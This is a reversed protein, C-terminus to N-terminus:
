EKHRTVRPFLGIFKKDEPLWLIPFSNNPTNHNLVLPLACENFGLYPRDHKGEKYHKDVISNDFYPEQSCLSVFETHEMANEEIIQIACVKFNITQNFQNKWNDVQESIYNLAERTAIYFLLTVSLENACFLESYHQQDTTPKFVRGFFKLVKGKPEGNVFRCYSKGSATFDDILFISNFQSCESDSLLETQLDKAKDKSIEYTPLVQENNLGASRRFYDIRSGDSLGIFLTRRKNKKYKDSGAIKRILYKSISLELATKELLIPRVIETYGLSVLHLIQGGSIFILKSKVFEYAVSKEAKTSFQKLWRGLSEIFRMGPSFQQYEDYKFNALAQLMPREEQVEEPTWEMIKVLLREALAIRM